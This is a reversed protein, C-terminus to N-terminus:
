LSRILRLSIEDADGEMRYGDTQLKIRSVTGPNFFAPTEEPTPQGSFAITTLELQGKIGQDSEVVDFFGTFHKASSDDKELKLVGKIMEGGNRTETIILSVERADAGEKGAIVMGKFYSGQSVAMVLDQREELSQKTAEGLEALYEEEALTAKKLYAMGAKEYARFSLGFKNSNVDLGRTGFYEMPRGRSWAFGDGGEKMRMGSLEWDSDPSAKLLRYSIHFPFIMGKSASYKYLRDWGKAPLKLDPRGITELKQATEELKKLDFPLKSYIISEDVPQYLDVKLEAGIKADIRMETHSVRKIETELWVMQYPSDPGLDEFLENTKEAISRTISSGQSDGHSVWEFLENKLSLVILGAGLLAIGAAFPLSRTAKKLIRYKPSGLHEVSSSEPASPPGGSQTATEPNLEADNDKQISLLLDDDGEDDMLLSDDDDLFDADESESSEAVSSELKEDAEKISDQDEPSQAEEGENIEEAAEPVSAEAETQDIAEPEETKVSDEVKGTSLEREIEDEELAVPAPPPPPLDGAREAINAPSNSEPKEGAASAEKMLSQPDPMSVLESEEEASDADPSGESEGMLTQPDPMSMLGDVEETESSDESDVEPEIVPIETDGGNLISGARMLLDDASSDSPKSTDEDLETSSEGAAMESGDVDISSLMDEVDGEFSGDSETGPRERSAPEVGADSPDSKDSKTPQSEPEAM